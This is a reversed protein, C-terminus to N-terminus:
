KYKNQKKLFIHLVCTRRMDPVPGATIPLYDTRYGLLVGKRIILQDEPGIYQYRLPHGPELYGTDGNHWEVTLIEGENFANVSLVASMNSTPKPDFPVYEESNKRDSLKYEQLTDARTIVSRGKTYHSGTEGEIAASQLVRKGVGQNQKRIDAHDQHKADGTSIITLAVESMYFTYDLTPLKDKPVRIIDIPRHHQDVRNCDFLPYIWWWSQKYFSGLGKSYVGYEEKNQLYSPVDILRTQPPILVQAVPSLNDFPPYYIGKYKPASGYDVAKSYRDMIYPLIQGPTEMAFNASVLENRLKAFGKDMLQFEYEALSIDNYASLNALSALDGESRLDRDVIPIGVFERIRRESDSDMVVQIIIDDRYPVIKDFYDGPRLQIKIGMKESRNSLFDAAESFHTVQIGRIQEKPTIIIANLTLTQKLRVKHKATLSAQRLFSGIINDIAM